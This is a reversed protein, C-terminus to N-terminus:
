QGGDRPAPAPNPIRLYLFLSDFKREMRGLAERHEVKMERVEVRLDAVDKAIPQTGADVKSQAWAEVRGWGALLVSGVAGAAIVASKVDSWMLGRRMAAEVHNQTARLDGKVVPVSPDSTPEEPAEDPNM